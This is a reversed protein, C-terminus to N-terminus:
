PWCGPGIQGVVQADVAVSARTVRQILALM